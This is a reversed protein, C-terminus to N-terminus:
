QPPPLNTMGRAFRWQGDPSQRLVSFARQQVATTDGGARTILQNRELGRMFALDGRIILEYCDFEQLLEYDAFFPVFADALAARGRIPPANQSWFEASDTVLATIAELSGNRLAERWSDLLAYVGQVAESAAPTAATAGSALDVVACRPGSTTQAASSQVYSAALM